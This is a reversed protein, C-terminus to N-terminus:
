KKFRNDVLRIPKQRHEIGTESALSGQDNLEVNMEIGLKQKLLKRFAAATEETHSKAELRVTMEDRGSSDREVLCIYDGAFNENQELIPGIGQPYINIGRLKVMNDSRGMFGRTRRFPLDLSNSYPMIETVDNSNYRIIPYIDNKFLCTVIQNGFVGEGHLPEDTDPDLIEVYQADEWIYMGDHDPGEASIAGTDGIGYWDFLEPGGWADALVDRSEMGFHGSIMDIKIDEGPIIGNERAVDALRKIYDAFGILVSTRFDKMLNIQQLSRTEIGTGASLFMANTYHLVAERIYHGGNIMGHGYCSQVTAAPQLGQFRYTRGLLLNQVERSYAGFLLPQPTGTTGSTTHFILPPRTEATYSDLGSFDGIPPYDALSKMLDSKSYTPLKTIDELSKIDGAEVGAAGWHRQYFPVEWARKLVDLFRENQISYLEDRSMGKFRNWLDEGIPYDKLMKKADFAEFYTPYTM